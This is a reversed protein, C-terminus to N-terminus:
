PVVDFQAVALETGHADVVRVTWAGLFAKRLGIGARTRYAHDAPIKMRTRKVLKGDREWRVTVTEAQRRHVVRFCVHAQDASQLSFTSSQGDCIGKEYATGVGIRDIHIGSRGVGGIPPGDSSGRPMTVYAKVAEPHMPENSPVQLHMSQALTDDSRTRRVDQTPEVTETADGSQLSLAALSPRAAKVPSRRRSWASADATHGQSSRPRPVDTAVATRPTAVQVAATTPAERARWADWALWMLLGLAIGIGLV